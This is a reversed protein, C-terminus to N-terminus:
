SVGSYVVAAATSRDREGSGSKRTLTPQSLTQHIVVLLVFRNTKRAHRIGKVFLLPAVCVHSWSKDLLQFTFPLYGGGWLFM